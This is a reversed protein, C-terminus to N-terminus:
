QKACSVDIFTEILEYSPKENKYYFQKIKDGVEQIAKETKLIEKLDRPVLIKNDTFDPAFTETFEPNICLLGEHSTVGIMVPVKHFRGELLLKEPPESLFATSINPEVTPTPYCM